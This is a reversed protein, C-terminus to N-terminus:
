AVRKENMQVRVNWSVARLFGKAHANIEGGRRPANHRCSGPMSATHWLTTSHCDSWIRLRGLEDIGSDRSM